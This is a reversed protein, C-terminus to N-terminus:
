AVEQFRAKPAGCVPRKVPSFQPSSRPKTPTAESHKRERAALSPSPSVVSPAGWDDPLSEWSAGEQDEDYTYGCVSCEYRAM